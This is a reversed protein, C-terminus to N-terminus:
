PLIQQLRARGGAVIPLGHAFTMVEFSFKLLKELSALGLAPQTRYKEPLPTFGHSEVNILADGMMMVGSGIASFLAIEGNGFGPLEVVELANHIRQGEVVLQDVQFGLDAQASPHALIPIGLKRRLALSARAHNGNTLIISVPAALGALEELAASALPIPDVLVLGAGTQIAASSLDTKVESSYAQWFCLGPAVEQIEEAQM